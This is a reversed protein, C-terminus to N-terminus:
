AFVEIAQHQERLERALAAVV